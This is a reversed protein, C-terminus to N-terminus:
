QAMCAIGLYETKYACDENTSWTSLSEIEEDSKYGFKADYFACLSSKGIPKTCQMCCRKSKQCAEQCKEQATYKANKLMPDVSIAFSSFNKGRVGITAAWQFPRGKPNMIYEDNYFSIDKAVSVNDIKCLFYPLYNAFLKLFLTNSRHIQRIINWLNNDM